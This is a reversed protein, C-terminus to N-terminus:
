MSLTKKLDQAMMLHHQLTPLTKQAFAAIDADDSKAAKEFLKVADEHDEVMEHVYKRDVNGSKDSWKETLKSTETEPLAVGKSVALLMLEKNAATHDAVMSNAFARVAPNTLHGMVAQSVAVEKAGSKAAKEFFSRIHHPAKPSDSPASEVADKTPTIAPATTDPTQASLITAFSVALVIAAGRLSNQRKTKM